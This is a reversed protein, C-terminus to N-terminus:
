FCRPVAQVIKIEKFHKFHLYCARKYVNTAVILVFFCICSRSGVYVFYLSDLLEGCKFVSVRQKRTCMQLVSCVAGKCVLDVRTPERPKTRYGRGKTNTGTILVESPM